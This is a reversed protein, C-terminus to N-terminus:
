GPFSRELHGGHSLKRFLFFRRTEFANVALAAKPPSASRDYRNLPLGLRFREVLDPNAIFHRGFAVLDADGKDLVEM